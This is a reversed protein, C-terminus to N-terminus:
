KKDLLDRVIESETKNTKKALKEIRTAQEDWVYYTKRKTTKNMIFINYVTVHVHVHVAQPYSNRSCNSARWTTSTTPLDVM